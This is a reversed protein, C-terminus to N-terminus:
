SSSRVYGPNTIALKDHVTRRVHAVILARNAGGDAAGSRIQTCLMENRRMLAQRLRDRGGAPIPEVGLLEDLGAWEGALFEEEHALERDLARLLNAAVRVLFQRRGDTHPVLEEDLFRQVADLIEHQSPRDQM